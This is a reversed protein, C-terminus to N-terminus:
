VGPEQAAPNGTAQITRTKLVPRQITTNTAIIGALQHFQALELIAAIAAWELDPSIKVLLPKGAQNEQQLAALIPGLQEVAQLSRLGPTNPSSVNVVFYDGLDQLLRFSSLYDEVAQELPTM